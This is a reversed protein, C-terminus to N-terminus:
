KLREESQRSWIMKDLAGTWQKGRDKADSKRGTIAFRDTDLTSKSNERTYQKVGYNLM